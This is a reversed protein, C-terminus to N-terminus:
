PLWVGKVQLPGGGESRECVVFFKIGDVIYTRTELTGTAGTGTSHRPATELQKDSLVQLLRSHLLGQRVARGDPLLIVPVNLAGTPIGPPLTVETSGRAAEVRPGLLRQAPVSLLWVIVVVGAAAVVWEILSGLRVPRTYRESRAGPPVRVLAEM